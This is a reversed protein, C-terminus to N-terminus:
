CPLTEAQACEFYIVALRLVQLDSLPMSIESPIICPVISFKLKITSIAFITSLCFLFPARVLVVVDQCIPLRESHLYHLQRRSSQVFHLRQLLHQQSIWQATRNVFCSFRLRETKTLRPMKQQVHKCFNSLFPLPMILNRPTCVALM